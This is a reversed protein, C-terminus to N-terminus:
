IEPSSGDNNLCIQFDSPEDHESETDVSGSRTAAMTGGGGETWRQKWSELRM